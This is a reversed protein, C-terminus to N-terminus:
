ILTLDQELRKPQSSEALRGFREKRCLHRYAMKDLSMEDGAMKTTLIELLYNILKVIKNVQVLCKSLTNSLCIPLYM